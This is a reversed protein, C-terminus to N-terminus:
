PAVAGPRPCAPVTGVGLKEDVCLHKPSNISMTPMPIEGKVAKKAPEHAQRGMVGRACIRHGRLQPGALKLSSDGLGIRTGEHPYHGDLAIEPLNRRLAPNPQNFETAMGCTTTAGALASGSLALLALTLLIRM